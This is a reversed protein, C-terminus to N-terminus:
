WNRRNDWHGYYDRNRIQKVVVIVKRVKFNGRLHLQWPGNSNRSPNRFRIKDYTYRRDDQFLWPEGGVEYRDTTWKGVRLAAGGHGRKSKAVLVVKQLDLDSIRLWPYQDKLSKKLYITAAEGRHGRIHSDNFDLVYRDGSAMATMPLTLLLLVTICVSRLRSSNKKGTLPSIAQQLSHTRKEM